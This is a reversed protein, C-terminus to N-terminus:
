PERLVEVTEPEESADTSMAQEDVLVEFGPVDTVARAFELDKADFYPGEGRAFADDLVVRSPVGFVCVRFRLGCEDRL